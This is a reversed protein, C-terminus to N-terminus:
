ARDGIGELYLSDAIENPLDTEDGPYFAGRDSSWMRVFKFHALAEVKPAKSAKPAESAQDVTTDKDAM